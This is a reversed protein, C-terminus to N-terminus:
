SEKIKSRKWYLIFALGLLFCIFIAIPTEKIEPMPSRDNEFNTILLYNAWYYPHKLNPRANQLYEQKAHQLATSKKEGDKYKKLFSPLLTISSGESAAWVSSIVSNVGSALFARTIGNIGEGTQLKGDATHCASLVVLDTSMPQKHLEYARLLFEENRDDFVLCSRAGDEKDVISHLSLYIIRSNNASSYFNNINAAKNYFTTGHYVENCIRLEEEATTLNALKAEAVGLGKKLLHANLQPSYTTAFGVFNNEYKHRNFPKFIMSAAYAYSCAWKEVIFKKNKDILAEFPLGHFLGDPIIILAQTQKMLDSPWDDFLKSYLHQAPEVEYNKFPSILLMKLDAINSDIQEYAIKKYFINQKSIAFLVISNQGTFLDL